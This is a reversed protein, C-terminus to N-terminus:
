LYRRLRLRSRPLGWEECADAIVASADPDPDALLARLTDRQKATLTREPTERKVQVGETVTVEASMVGGVAVAVAFARGGGIAVTVAARVVVAVAVARVM